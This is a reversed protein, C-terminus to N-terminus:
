NPTELGGEMAARSDGSALSVLFPQMYNYDDEMTIVIGNKTTSAHVISLLASTTSCEHRGSNWQVGGRLSTKQSPNRMYSTWIWHWIWNLGEGVGGGGM